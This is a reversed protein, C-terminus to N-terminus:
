KEAGDHGGVHSAAKGLRPHLRETLRLALTQAPAQDGSCPCLCLIFWLWRAHLSLGLLSGQEPPACRATSVARHGLSGPLQVHAWSRPSPVGVPGRPQSGLVAGALWAAGERHQAPRALAAGLGRHHRQVSRATRKGTQVLLECVDSERGRSGSQTGPARPLSAPSCKQPGRGWGRPRRTGPIRCATSLRQRRRM